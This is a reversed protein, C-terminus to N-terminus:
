PSYTSSSSIYLCCQEPINWDSLLFSVLPSSIKAAAANVFSKPRLIAM